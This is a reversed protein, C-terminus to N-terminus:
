TSVPLRKLFSPLCDWVRDPTAKQEIGTSVRSEYLVFEGFLSPQLEDVVVDGDVADSHIGGPSRVHAPNNEVGQGLDHGTGRVGHVNLRLDCAARQLERCVDDVPNDATVYEDMKMQGVIAPCPLNPLPIM